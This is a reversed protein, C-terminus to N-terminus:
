NTIKKYGEYYKYIAKIYEYPERGRCYGHQVADSNYIQPNALMLISEATNSDWIAPNKGISTAVARADIVHGLGANYSALVFKPREAESVYKAWHKDLQILYKVGAAINKEPNFIDAEPLGLGAATSPMLQMLGSAGAWSHASPNFKSEQYTIAALLRWDWGLRLAERQLIHDFASIKNKTKAIKESIETKEEAIYKPELYYKKRLKQLTGDSKIKYIWKNLERQFEPSNKRVVWAVKMPFSVSINVDLESYYTQNLLATAEDAITYDIEGRHVKEILDDNSLNSEVSKINIKIGTEDQLSRLRTYYSSNERVHITKGNLDLVNDIHIAKGLHEKNRQILVQRTTFLPESFQLQKSRKRTITINSAVLDHDLSNLMYPLNDLDRTTTVELTVGLDKAFNRLLEYEFGMPEDRYIFYSNPNYAMIVKLKGRSKIEELSVRSLKEWVQICSLFLLPLLIFVKTIRSM